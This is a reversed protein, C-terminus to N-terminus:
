EGAGAGAGVLTVWQARWAQAEMPDPWFEVQRAILGDTVTHFTIARAQQTGDSISVDTVVQDGECVIANLEFRWEGDAPYQSNIATFNARGITLESSQPWLGEFDESLWCSAREFDNTRMADWFALVTEKPSM